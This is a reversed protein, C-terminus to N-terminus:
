RDGFIPRTLPVFVKVYKICRRRALDSLAQEIRPMLEHPREPFVACIHPFAAIQGLLDKLSMLKTRKTPALMRFAYYVLIMLSYQAAEDGHNSAPPSPLGSQRMGVSVALNLAWEGDRCGQDLAEGILRHAETTGLRKTLEKVDPDQHLTTVVQTHTMQESILLNDMAIYVAKKLSDLDVPPM